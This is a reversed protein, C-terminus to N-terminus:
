VEIARGIEAQYVKIDKFEKLIQNGVWSIANEDGHVLIVKEPKLRRVIEILGERRSHASFKFREIACRVIEEESFETLKIKGGKVANAIKYGPTSEDMYGVIFIASSSRKLWHKSLNYSATGEVMMGSSAVVICPSKFFDEPNEIENLDHLPINRLEFEPDVMNVIYCNTDYVRNIKTGIGGTYIETKPLKNKEM